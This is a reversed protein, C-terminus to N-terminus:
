FRARRASEIRLFAVSRFRLYLSECSTSSSLRFSWFTTSENVTLVDSQDILGMSFLQVHVDLYGGEKTVFEVGQAALEVHVGHMYQSSVDQFSLRLLGTLRGNKGNSGLVLCMHPPLAREVSQLAREVYQPARGARRQCLHADSRITERTPNMNAGTAISSERLGIVEAAQFAVPPSSACLKGIEVHVGPVRTDRNSSRKVQALAESLEQTNQSFPRAPVPLDVM